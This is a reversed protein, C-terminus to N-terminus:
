PHTIVQAASMDGLIGQSLQLYEIAAPDHGLLHSGVADVAVCDFSALILDLRKPTGVLHKGTLVVSADV